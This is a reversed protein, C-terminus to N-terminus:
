AARHQSMAKLTPGYRTECCGCLVTPRSFGNFYHAYADFQHVLSDCHDCNVVNWGWTAYLTIDDTAPKHHTQEYQEITQPGPTEHQNQM